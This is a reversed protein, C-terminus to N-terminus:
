KVRRVIYNYGCSDQIAIIDVVSIDTDFFNEDSLAEALCTDDYWM